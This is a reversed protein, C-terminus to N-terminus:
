KEEKQMLELIKERLLDNAKELDMGEVSFPKGIRTTLKGKKVLKKAM